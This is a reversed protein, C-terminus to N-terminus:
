NTRGQEEENGANHEKSKLNANGLQYSLSIRFSRTDGYSKITNEIGNSTYRILPRQANLLDECVLTLSLKKNLMRFKVSVDLMNMTSIHFIQYRGPLQVAYNLGFSITKAKNLTFDNNTYFYGNWGNISQIFSTKSRICQYNLNFGTFSNWWSWHSFNYYTSFGIQYTNAYNLPTQRTVNTVPDVISLEQGFDSVQSYYVSNVWKQNRIYSLELNDIYSPKLFPNGESYSYPNTRIIFPNLYDFDPRRIRRSYNLSFTNKNDPVYTLYVTPFLRVYNNKNTQGMNKSYGETQTAEVRLGIQAEWKKSLKKSGSLYLSENNELYNFENSQNTDLVSIGSQRDYVTLDNKTNTQSFKAGFSLAAWKFPLSFDLKGSYNQIQNLNNATASFFSGPLISKNVDLANGSFSREDKKAYQFYDLDLVITKGISDLTFVHNWNLSNMANKSGNAVDSSVYSNVTRSGRDFRTTLPDTSSTNNTFSGLYRIGTTWNKNLKYDIGSNLSLWDSESRNKLQQEWLEETYFVQENFTTQLKQKGKNVSFQFSLKNRNYNFLGRLAGGGYTKQTFSTGMDANWSNARGKKLRINILGSNGEADYKAPPTTIVEISKINDAPISKLFNALDESSMRHLRDDVMVLVEGKGVISVQDNQVKVTPTAKLADLATGGSVLTANEVYFVLRDVQQEIIKKRATITVGNLEQTGKILIEGLDLDQALQIKWSKEAGFEELMLLYTGKEAKIVFQGLSDTVAKKAPTSDVQLLSVYVLEIPTRDPNLIKGTLTVEQSYLATFLFSFILTIFTTKLKM